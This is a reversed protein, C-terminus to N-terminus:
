SIFMKENPSVLILYKYTLLDLVNINRTEAVELGPLNQFSRKIELEKKPLAIMARNTKKNLLKEFGSVQSIKKIIENAEKTKPRSLAIKDLFLIENDRLKQSLVIFFAKKKMKKNIKKSYDKEKLPGHTVGGGRWLPSRISGHRARGTGKQRWPKRGGGRVEGRSKAHAVPRRLNSQMSTVVQHILDPNWKLNFVGTPLEIRGVKEGNQNYLKVEM